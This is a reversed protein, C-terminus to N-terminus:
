GFWKQLEAIKRQLWEEVKGREDKSIPFDIDDFSKVGRWWPWDKTPALSLAWMIDGETWLESNDSDEPTIVIGLTGHGLPM